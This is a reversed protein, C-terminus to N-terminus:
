ANRDLYMSHPSLITPKKAQEEQGEAPPQSLSLLWFDEQTEAPLSSLDPTDRAWGAGDSSTQARCIISLLGLMTKKSRYVDVDWNKEKSVVEKPGQWPDDIRM